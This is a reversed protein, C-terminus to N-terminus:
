IFLGLHLSSSHFYIWFLPSDSRKNESKHSKKRKKHKHRHKESGSSSADDDSVTGDTGSAALDPRPECGASDAPGLAAAAAACADPDLPTPQDAATACRPAPGAFFPQRAIHQGPHAFRVCVSAPTDLRLAVLRLLDRTLLSRRRGAPAGSGSSPQRTGLRPHVVQAWCLRQRATVLSRAAPAVADLM